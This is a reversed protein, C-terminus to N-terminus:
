EKKGKAKELAKTLKKLEKRKRENAKWLQGVVINLRQIEEAQIASEKVVSLWGNVIEENGYEDLVRDCNFAGSEYQALLDRMAAVTM